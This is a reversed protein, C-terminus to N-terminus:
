QDCCELACNSFTNFAAQVDAALDIEIQELALWFIETNLSLNDHMQRNCALEEEPTTAISMCADNGAMIAKNWEEFADQRAQHEACAREYALYMQTRWLEACAILCEEDIPQGGPCVFSPLPYFSSPSTGCYPNSTFMALFAAVIFKIM